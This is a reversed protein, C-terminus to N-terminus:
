KSRTRQQLGAVIEHYHDLRRQSILNKEAAEQIACGPENQHNCNRFKCEGLLPRFEIFGNLVEDATVHWLGFERVGPSDILNGGQPLHYLRTSTTTHKGLGTTASIEGIPISNQQTLASIISSKGVGSAGVLVCTKDKIFRSLEDLGHPSIVSTFIVSYGIKKYIELRQQIAAKSPEDLLDSKNLLIVPQMRLNEAAILYRDIMDESLVPPPANAILIVDVNAAIPKVRHASEPRGLLSKRPLLAAVIGHQNNDPLWLVRDGTIVPEANKRLHCRIIHGDNDEVDVTAGFTAIILGEKEAGTLKSKKFSASHDSKKMFHIRLLFQSRYSIMM